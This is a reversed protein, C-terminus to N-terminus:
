FRRIIGNKDEAKKRPLRDHFSGDFCHRLEHGLTSTDTRKGTYITCTSEELNYKTCGNIMVYPPVDYGRGCFGDIDDITIWTVQVSRAMTPETVDFWEPMFSFTAIVFAWM